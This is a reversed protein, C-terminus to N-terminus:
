PKRHHEYYQRLVANIRTQYGRGQSKFWELVDADIRISAHTKTRPLPVETMVWDPPVADLADHPDSGDPVGPQAARKWDSGVEGQSRMEELDNARFRVIREKKEPM